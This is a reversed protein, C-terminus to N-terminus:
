PRRGTPEYAQITYGYDLPCVAVVHVFCAAAVVAVSLVLIGAVASLAPPVDTSSGPAEMDAPMM